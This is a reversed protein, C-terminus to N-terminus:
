RLSDTKIKKPGAVIYFTRNQLVQKNGDKDKVQICEVRVRNGPELNKFSDSYDHTNLNNGFIIFGFENWRAITVQFSVVKYKDGPTLLKGAKVFEEKTLSDKEPSLIYPKENITVNCVNRSSQSFLSTQVLLIPFLLHLCKKM